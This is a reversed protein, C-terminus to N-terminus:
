NINIILKINELQYKYNVKYKRISISKLRKIGKFRIIKVSTYSIIQFFIKSNDRVTVNVFVYM